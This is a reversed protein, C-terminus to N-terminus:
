DYDFFLLGYVLIYYVIEWSDLTAVLAVMLWSFKFSILM